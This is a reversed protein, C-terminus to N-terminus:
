LWSMNLKIRLAQEPALFEGDTSATDSERLSAARAYGPSRSSWALKSWDM